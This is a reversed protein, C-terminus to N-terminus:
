SFGLSPAPGRPSSRHGGRRDVRLFAIGGHLEFSRRAVLTDLAEPANEPRVGAAIGGGGRARSSPSAAASTNAM